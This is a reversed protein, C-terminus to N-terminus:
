GSPGILAEPGVTVRRRWATPWTVVVPFFAAIFVATGVVLPV